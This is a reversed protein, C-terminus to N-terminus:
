RCTSRNRRPGLTGARRRLNFSERGRRAARCLRDEIGIARRGGPRRRAPLPGPSLWQRSDPSFLMAHGPRISVSGCERRAEQRRSAALLEELARVFPPGAILPEMTDINFLTSFNDRHKAYAAARSLLLRGAWGPALPELTGHWPADAPPAADGLNKRDSFFQVLRQYEAWTTPPKQHTAELLDRRYFVTLGPSGFPVAWIDDGWAVGQQVLLFLDSWAAQSSERVGKPVPM